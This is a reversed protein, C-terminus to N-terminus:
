PTHGNGVLYAEIQDCAQSVLEAARPDTALALPIFEERSVSLYRAAKDPNGSNVVGRLNDIRDALKLLRSEVPIVRLNDLYARDRAPKDAQAAQAKTVDKVLDTARQGLAGALVQEDLWDCDELVDHNLAAVIMDVDRSGLEEWLIRAVRVPHDIFPTGEDRLHANHAAAAFRYAAVIREADSAPLTAIIVAVDPPTPPAHYPVTM